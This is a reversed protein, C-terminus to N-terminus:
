ATVNLRRGTVQGQTNVVPKNQQGKATKQAETEQSKNERVPAPRAETARKTESAPQVAPKSVSKIDM